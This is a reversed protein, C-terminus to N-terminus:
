MLDPLDCEMRHALRCCLARARRGKPGKFCAAGRRASPSVPGIQLGGAGAARRSLGSLHALTARARAASMPEPSLEVNRLPRIEIATLRAGSADLTFYAKGFMGYDHGVPLHDREAGGLFIFNGLSYFIAHDRGTEVARPVHPHHGLVLNVGAEEVARRFLRRQGPDLRIRNEAGYHISLIKVEAEAAALGALVRDYHGPKFLTTMGARESDPRAAFATNGIGIAALAVRIGNFTGIRPAFAAAGRGIGHHLINRHRAATEFFTRTGALGPWGHDFAHNNALGFANVGLDMLHRVNDPHSRFVFRKALPTGDRPAVVSEVNVFNVDGDLHDGIFATTHALSYTGFKSVTDPRPPTRSRAFNVDGGFTVVLERPEAVAPPAMFAPVVLAMLARGAARRAGSLLRAVRGHPRVAIDDHAGALRPGHCPPPAGRADTAAERDTLPTRNRTKRTSM